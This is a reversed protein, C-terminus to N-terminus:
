KTDKIQITGTEDGMAMLRGDSRMALSTVANAVNDIERVITKRSSDVMMVSRGHAFLMLDSENRDTCVCTIMGSATSLETATYKKWFRQENTAKTVLRPTRTAELKQYGLKEPMYAQKDTSSM